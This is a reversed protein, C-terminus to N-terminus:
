CSAALHVRSAQWYPRVEEDEVTVLLNIVNYSDLRSQRSSSKTKSGHLKQKAEPREVPANKESRKHGERTM